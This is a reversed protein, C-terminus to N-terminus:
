SETILVHVTANNVLTTAALLVEIGLISVANRQHVTCTFGTTTVTMIIFQNATGGVINAQINPTSGFATFTNSYVGSANTTGTFTLQRKATSPTPINLAGTGSNYTAAGTGTTTLSIATRAGSQTIFSSGNTLQNTNTPITPKNLIQAIGSVAGWDSNVQAAPIAPKGSISAWTPIYGLGLWKNTTDIINLKGAVVVSDAPVYNLAATIMGATIGSIFGSPNSNLYYLSLNPTGSLSGYQGDLAVQSLGFVKNASLTPIFSANPYSGSLLPYRRDGKAIISDTIDVLQFFRVKTSDWNAAYIRYQNGLPSFATDVFLVNKPSIPQPTSQSARLKDATQSFSLLSCFLLAATFIAKM